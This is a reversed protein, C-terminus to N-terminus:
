EETLRVDKRSKGGGMRLKNKLRKRGEKETEAQWYSCVAKNELSQYGCSGQWALASCQLLHFFLLAVTEHTVEGRSM